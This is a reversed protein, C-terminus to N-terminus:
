LRCWFGAQRLGQSGGRLWVPGSIHSALIYKDLALVDNGTNPSGYFALAFVDFAAHPGIAYWITGSRWITFCLSLALLVISLIDVTTKMPKFFHHVGGFLDSSLHNGLIYGADNVGDGLDMPGSWHGRERFAIALRPSEKIGAHIISFVMFSEDTAIAPDRIKTNAGGLSLTSPRLYHGDRFQSRFLQIPKDSRERAGHFLYQRRRRHRTRLCRQEHQDSAAIPGTCELWPRAAPRAVPEVGVGRLGQHQCHCRTAQWEGHRVIPRSSCSRFDPAMAPDEDHRRWSFPVTQPASWQGDARHSEMLTWEGEAGRMFFVTKGEPTFAPSDDDLPGPIVRLAFVTPTAAYATGGILAAATGRLLPLCLKLHM